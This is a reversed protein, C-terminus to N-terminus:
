DRHVCIKLSLAAYSNRLVPCCLALSYILRVIEAEKPVIILNGHEDKTCDLFNTHNLHVKGQKCGMRIGWKINKSKEHSEHQAVAAHAVLVEHVKEDMTSINETKFRVEVGLKILKQLTVLTDLTNRGWRSMSKTLILDIKGDRCDNIMRTFEDRNEIGIGSQTDAYIGAFDWDPHECVLKTFHAAQHKLSKTQEEHETSVRCYTVVKLHKPHKVTVPIVTIIKEM